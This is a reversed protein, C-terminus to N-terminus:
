EMETKLVDVASETSLMPTLVLTNWLVPGHIGRLKKAITRLVAKRRAESIQDDGTIHISLIAILPGMNALKYDIDALLPVLGFDNDLLRNFNELAVAGEYYESGGFGALGGVRIPANNKVTTRLDADIAQILAASKFQAKVDTPMDADDLMSKFASAREAKQIAWSVFPFVDDTTIPRGKILGVIANMDGNANLVDLILEFKAIEEPAIRKPLADSPMAGNSLFLAMLEKLFPAESALAGTSLRVGPGDAPATKAINLNSLYVFARLKLDGLTQNLFAKKTDADPQDEILVKSIKVINADIPGQVMSQLLGSKNGAMGEKKALGKSLNSRTTGAAMDTFRDLVAIAKTRKDDIVDFKAERIINWMQNLAPTITPELQAVEDSLTKLIAMDDGLGQSNRVLLMSLADKGGDNQEAWAKRAAKDALAALLSKFLDASEKDIPGSLIKHIIGTNAEKLSVLQRLIAGKKPEPLKMTPAIEALAAKREDAKSFDKTKILAWIKKAAAMPDTQNESEPQSNEADGPKQTTKDCATNHLCFLLIAITKLSITLPNM